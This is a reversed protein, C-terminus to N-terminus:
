ILANRYLIGHLSPVIMAGVEQQVGLAGADHAPQIRCPDQPKEPERIAGQLPDVAAEGQALAEGVGVAEGERLVKRRNQVAESAFKIRSETSSFRGDIEGAFMGQRLPERLGDDAAAKGQDAEPLLDLADRM